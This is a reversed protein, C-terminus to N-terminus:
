SRRRHVWMHGRMAIQAATCALWGDRRGVIPPQVPLSILMDRMAHFPHREDPALPLMFGYRGARHQQGALPLPDTGPLLRVGRRQALQFLSPTPWHRPRGGNDGLFLAESLPSELLRRVTRGRLGLWKGLGWPLVPLAGARRVEQVVTEIPQGDEIRRRTGLALVELREHTVIQRGAILILRHGTSQLQLSENEDCALVQWHGIFGNLRRMIEGFRDVGASETLMLVGATDHRLHMRAATYVVNAAAHDFMTSLKFRRHLHVHADVLALPWGIVTQGTLGLQPHQDARTM